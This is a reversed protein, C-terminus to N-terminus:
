LSDLIRARRADYEEPTVLGQDRLEQLQRLREAVSAPAAVPAPSASPTVQGRLNAALYTAEFGDDSLLTMATADDPNMGSDSAMRRATSVKYVTTGIGLLVAIVAFAVFGAPPGPDPQGFGPGFDEAAAAPQGVLLAALLPALVVLVAAGGGRLKERSM